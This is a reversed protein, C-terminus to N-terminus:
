GTSGNNTDEEVPAIAEGTELAVMGSIQPPAAEVEDVEGAAVTMGSLQLADQEPEVALRLRGAGDFEYDRPVGHYHRRGEDDTHYNCRREPDYLVLRGGAVVAPAPAAPEEVREIQVRRKAM